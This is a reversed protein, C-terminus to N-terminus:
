STLNVQCKKKAYLDVGKADLRSEIHWHIRGGFVRSAGAAMKLVGGVAGGTEEAAKQLAAAGSRVEPTTPALMDFNYTQNFGAEFDRAEELIHDYRYVEVWETSNGKSSSSRKERKERGVLSVKLLGHVPRKAELTVKGSFLQESDATDRALELKLRGKMFRAIYYAAVGGLILVVAAIFLNLGM